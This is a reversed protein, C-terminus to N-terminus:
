QFISFRGGQFGEMEVNFYCRHTPTNLAKEAEARLYLVNTQMSKFVARGDFAVVAAAVNFVEKMADGLLEDPEGLALRSKVEADPLGVLAGAFAGLLLIDAKVILAEQSPYISYIGYVQKIRSDFPKAPTFEVRRNTLSGFHRSLVPATPESM